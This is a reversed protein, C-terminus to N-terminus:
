QGNREEAVHHISAQDNGTAEHRQAHPKMQALLMLMDVSVLRHLMIVFVNVVLVMLVGVLLVDRCTGAMQVPVAMVGYNMRVRMKGVRVM